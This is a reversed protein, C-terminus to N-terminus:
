PWDWLFRFVIMACGITVVNYCSLSIFSAHFSCVFCNSTVPLVIVVFLPSFWDVANEHFHIHTLWLIAIRQIGNGVQCSKLIWKWGKEGRWVTSSYHSYVCVCVCVRCWPFLPHHHSFPLTYFLGCWCVENILQSLHARHQWRRTRYVVSRCSVHMCKYALYWWQPSCYDWVSTRRCQHM